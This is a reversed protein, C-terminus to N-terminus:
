DETGLPAFDRCQKPERVQGFWAHFYDCSPYEQTKGCRVEITVDNYRCVDCLSKTGSTTM